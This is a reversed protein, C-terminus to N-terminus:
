VPNDGQLCALEEHIACRGPHEVRCLEGSRDESGGGDVRLGRPTDSMCCNQTDSSPPADRPPVYASMASPMTSIKRAVPVNLKACPSNMSSGANRTPEQCAVWRALIPTDMTTPRAITAMM